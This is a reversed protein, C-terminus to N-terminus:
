RSRMPAAPPPRRPSRDRYGDRQADAQGSDALPLRERVGAVVRQCMEADTGFDVGGRCTRARFSEVRHRGRRPARGAARGHGVFEDYDHGAISVVIPAGLRASIPCTTTSSPRSATTTWASRTSCAPRRKSPAGPPTARARNSPSPRPLDGGLRGLDVLGAMERAYGFTGSAVMIPNPLPLRGLQVALDITALLTLGKLAGSSKRRGRAPRWLPAARAVHGIYRGLTDGFRPM